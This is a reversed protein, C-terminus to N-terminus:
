SNGAHVWLFTTSRLCTLAWIPIGPGAITIQDSTCDVRLSHGRGSYLLRSGNNTRAVRGHLCIVSKSLWSCCQLGGAGTLNRGSPMGLCCVRATPILSRQRRRRGCKHPCLSLGRDLRWNLAKRLSMLRDSICRIIDVAPLLWDTIAIAPWGM